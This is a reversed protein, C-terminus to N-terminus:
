RLTTKLNEFGGGRGCSPLKSAELATVPCVQDPRSSLGLRITSAIAALLGASLKKIQDVPSALSGELPKRCASCNM